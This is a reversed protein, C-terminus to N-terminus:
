VPLEVRVKMRARFESGGFDSHYYSLNINGRSRRAALVDGDKGTTGDLWLAARCITEEVGERTADLMWHSSTYIQDCPRPKEHPSTSLVEIELREPVSQAHVLSGSLCGVVVCTMRAGCQMRTLWMVQARHV